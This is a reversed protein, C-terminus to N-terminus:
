VIGQGVASRKCSYNIGNTAVYTYKEKDCCTRPIELMLMAAAFSNLLNVDGFVPYKELLELAVPM